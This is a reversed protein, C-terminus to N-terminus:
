GFGPALGATAITISIPFEEDNAALRLLQAPPLASSVYRPLIVFALAFSLGALISILRVSLKQRGDSGSFVNFDILRSLALRYLIRFQHTEDPM